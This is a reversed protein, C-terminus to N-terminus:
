VSCITPLTLHTYSVPMLRNSPTHYGEKRPKFCYTTCASPCVSPECFRSSDRICMESGVLSSTM